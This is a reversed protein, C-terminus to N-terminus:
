QGFQVIKVRKNTGRFARGFKFKGYVKFTIYGDEDVADLLQEKDFIASIKVRKGGWSRTHIPKLGGPWLELDTRDVTRWDIGNPLRLVIMIHKHAVKRNIIWPTVRLQMAEFPAVVSMYVFASASEIGDNVSLTITNLGADLEVEPQPGTAFVKGKLYWTYTLQQNPDPDYTASGDLTVEATERGNENPWAYLTKSAGASARPKSNGIITIPMQKTGANTSEVIFAGSYTGLFGLPMKIYANVFQYSSAPMNFDNISFTINDAPIISNPGNFDSSYIFIHNVDNVGTMELIRFTYTKTTNPEVILTAESPYILFVPGNDLSDAALTLGSDTLEVNVNTFFWKNPDITGDFNYTSVIGDGVLGNIALNFPGDSTGRIEVRFQADQELPLNIVQQFGEAPTNGDYPVEDGNPDLILFSSGPIQEDIINYSFNFGTHRGISDYVHLDAHSELIISLQMQPQELSLTQPTQLALIALCTTLELDQQGTLWGGGPWNGQETQRGIYEVCLDNFWDHGGLLTKDSLVLARALALAYDYDSKGMWGDPNTISYNDELWNLGDVVNSDSPQIGCLIHSLVSAATMTHISADGPIFASGGDPNQCRNLFLLAKQYTQDTQNANIGLRIDAMKIAFLAWQTNSLDAYASNGYGFGGYNADNIDVSGILSNADLQSDILWNRMKEIQTLYVNNPCAILPLCAASTYYTSYNSDNFASGDPNINSLIYDIGAAVVPDTDNYDYNLMALEALATIAPDNSWSGNPLQQERLWSIGLPIAKKPDYPNEYPEYTVWDIYLNGTRNEDLYGGAWGGSYTRFVISASNWPVYDNISDIGLGDISFIVNDPRWDITYEHYQTPDLGSDAMKHQLSKYINQGGAGIDQSEQWSSLVLEGGVCDFLRSLLTFDIQTYKGQQLGNYYLLFSAVFGWDGDSRMRCTYKGYGFTGSSSIQSGTSFYTDGTANLRLSETGNDDVIELYPPLASWNQPGPTELSYNSDRPLWDSTIDLTSNFDYVWTQFNDAASPQLPITNPQGATINEDSCPYYPKFLRAAEKAYLRGDQQRYVPCYGRYTMDGSIGTQAPFDKSLDPSLAWFIMGKFWTVNSWVNFAADYCKLQIDESYQGLNSPNSDSPNEHADNTTLYGIETFIVSKTISNNTRWDTIEQLLQGWASILDEKTPNDGAAALPFYANIGIYDVSSWFCVDKYEDYDAAYAIPMKGLIASRVTSIVTDWYTKNNNSISKLGSGVVFLDNSNLKQYAIQAYSYIFTNYYYFWLGTHAPTITRRSSGDLVDVHPKLVVKWGRSHAQDIINKVQADTPTQAANRRISTDSGNSMYWTPVIEITNTQTKYELWSLSQLTNADNIDYDTTSYCPYAIGFYDYSYSRSVFLTSLLMLATVFFKKM